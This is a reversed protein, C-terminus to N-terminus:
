RRHVITASSRKTRATKAEGNLNFLRSNAAFAPRSIILSITTFSYPQLLPDFFAEARM